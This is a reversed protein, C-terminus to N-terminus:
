VGGDPNLANHVSFKDRLCAGDATVFGCLCKSVKSKSPVPLLPLVSVPNSNLGSKM